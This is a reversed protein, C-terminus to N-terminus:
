RGQSLRWLPRLLTQVVLRPFRPLMGLELNELRTQYRLFCTAEASTACFCAIPTQLVANLTLTPLIPVVWRDPM